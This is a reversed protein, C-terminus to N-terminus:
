EKGAADGAPPLECARGKLGFIVKLLKPAVGEFVKPALYESAVRKNIEALTPYPHVAQALKSLRVGGSLVTAWEGILDGARPGLIRVGLVQGQADVVMKILGDPTNEALARDNESFPQVHTTVELDAARAQRYTMGV